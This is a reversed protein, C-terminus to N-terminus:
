KKDSVVEVPESDVEAVEALPTQVQVAVEQPEELRCQQINAIKSFKRVSISSNRSEFLNQHTCPALRAEGSKDRLTSELRSNYRRRSEGRTEIKSFEGLAVALCDLGSIVVM